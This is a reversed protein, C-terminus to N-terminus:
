LLIQEMATNSACIGSDKMAIVMQGIIYVTDMPKQLAGSELILTMELAKGSVMDKSLVKTGSEM